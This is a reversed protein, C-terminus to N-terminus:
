LHTFPLQCLLSSVVVVRPLPYKNPEIIKSLANLLTLWVTSIVVTELSVTGQKESFTHRRITNRIRVRMINGCTSDMGYWNTACLM